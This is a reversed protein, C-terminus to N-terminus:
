KVVLQMDKPAKVTFSFANRKHEKSKISNRWRLEGTAEDHKAGSATIDAVAIETNKSLPVQDIVEIDISKANGNKVIIEYAVDYHKDNDLVKEKSKDKIKSRKVTVNKDQGLSLELTDGTDGTQLFTKGVFTGGFYVNAKGPLLNLEEYNTIRATLYAKLDVKPVTKHMYNTKLEKNLISVYHNKNDSPISYSLKIEFEAQVMNEDMTVYEFAEKDGIVVNQGPTAITTNAGSAISFNYPNSLTTTTNFTSINNTYGLGNNTSFTPSTYPQAKITTANRYVDVFYPNLDPIDFNQKPNATSLTLKVDKWDAGTNQFVTAKYTLQIPKDVNEARLDYMPAWGANPVFYNIGITITAPAEALVTVLVRYDPKNEEGTKVEKNSEESQIQEIRDNIANIKLQVRAEEKKLKLLESNINNLKERLFTLGNKLLELSDKKSDGKYLRHNLLVNKETNLVERQDTISEMEYELQTLSDNLLRLTKTYKANGNTKYVQLEPYHLIYQTETVMCNNSGSAQISPADISNELGEFIIVSQGQPVTVSGTRFVQAGQLYVTVKEPKTKVPKETETAQAGLFVLLSLASFLIRKMAMHKLKIAFM